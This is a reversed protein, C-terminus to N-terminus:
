RHDGEGGLVGRGARDHLKELNIRAVDELSIDLERAVMAVYWLVDGLEVFLADRRATTLVGWDDRLTKKIANAMEGAEGVLGLVVYTIAQPFDARPYIATRKAQEQYENLNM